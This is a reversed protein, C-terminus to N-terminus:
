SNEFDRWVQGNKGTTFKYFEFKKLWRILNQNQAMGLEERVAKFDAIGAENRHKEFAADLHKRKEAWAELELTEKNKAVADKDAKKKAKSDRHAQIAQCVGDDDIVFAPYEFWAYRTRPTPFNRIATVEVQVARGKDTPGTELGLLDICVDPDRVFVGSGSARDMGVVRTKDGKSHHHGFVIAVDLERTLYDFMNALKTMEHANNEDGPLVKYIPDIILTSFGCNQCHAKIMEIMKDLPQTYGRLNWIHLNNELSKQEKEGLKRHKIVEEFRHRCSAEDLELNLYLVGSKKCEWDLWKGGAGLAVSLDLLSWTKGIKSGGILSMKHGRRLLGDIILEPLPLDQERMLAFPKIFPLGGGPVGQSFDYGITKEEVAEEEEEFEDDYIPNGNEDYDIIM